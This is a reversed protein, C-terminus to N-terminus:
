EFSVKRILCNQPNEVIQSVSRAFGTRHPDDRTAWPTDGPRFTSTGVQAPVASSWDQPPGNHPSEWPRDGPQCRRKQFSKEVKEHLVVKRILRDHATEPAKRPM